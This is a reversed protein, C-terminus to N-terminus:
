LVYKRLTLKKNCIVDTLSLTVRIFTLPCVKLLFTLFRVSFFEQAITKNSNIKKLLLIKQM